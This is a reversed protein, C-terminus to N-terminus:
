PISPLYYLVFIMGSNLSLGPSISGGLSGKKMSHEHGMNSIATYHNKINEM